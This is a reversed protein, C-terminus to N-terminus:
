NNLESDIIEDSKSEEILNIANNFDLMIKGVNLEYDKSFYEKYDFDTNEDWNAIKELVIQNIIKFEEKQNVVSSFFKNTIEKMNNFSAIYILPMSRTSEYYNIINKSFKGKGHSISNFYDKCFLLGKLGGTIKNLEDKSKKKSQSIKNCIEFTQKWIHNNEKEKVDLDLEKNLHKLLVELSKKFSERQVSVNNLLISLDLKENLKNVQNQLDGIKDDSEDNKTKLTEIEKKLKMVIDNFEKRTVIEEDKSSSKEIIKYDNETSRIVNKTIMKDRLQSEVEEGSIDKKDNEKNSEDSKQKTEDSDNSDKEKKYIVTKGRKDKKESINKDFLEYFQNIKDKKIYKYLEINIAEDKEQVFKRFFLLIFCAVKQIYTLKIRNFAKKFPTINLEKEVEKSELNLSKAIKESDFLDLLQKKFESVSIKKEAKMTQIFLDFGNKIFYTLVKYLITNQDIRISNEILIFFINEVKDVLEENSKSSYDLVIRHLKVLYEKMSLDNLDNKQKSYILLYKMYEFKKLLNDQDQKKSDITKPEM